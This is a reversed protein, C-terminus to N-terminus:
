HNEHKVEAKLTAEVLCLERQEASNLKIGQLLMLLIKAETNDITLTIM